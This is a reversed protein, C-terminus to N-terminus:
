WEGKKFDFYKGNVAAPFYTLNEKIVSPASLIFFQPM